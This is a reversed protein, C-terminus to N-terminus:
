SKTFAKKIEARYADGRLGASAAKQSIEYSRQNVTVGEIAAFKAAKSRGIPKTIASRQIKPNTTM